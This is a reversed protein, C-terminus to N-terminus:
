VEVQLFSSRLEMLLKGLINEGEWVGDVLVCGWTQDGWDNGEVLEADGTSLLRAKLTPSAFKKRLLERMIGVKVQEWDARLSLKHAIRKARCPKEASRILDREADNFTKAAQYAHEVSPYIKGDMIIKCPFFNSLFEWDGRFKTIAATM